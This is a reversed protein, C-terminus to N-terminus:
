RYRYGIGVRGAADLVNGRSMPLFMLSLGVPVFFHHSPQAHTAAAPASSVIDIEVGLEPGVFPTVAIERTGNRTYGILGGAFSVSLTARENLRGMIGVGVRGSSVMLYRADLSGIEARGHLILGLNATLMPGAAIALAGGILVRSYFSALVPAASVAFYPSGRWPERAPVFVPQPLVGPPAASAAPQTARPEIVQPPPPLSVLAAPPTASEQAAVQGAWSALTGGLILLSGRRLQWYILLRALQM